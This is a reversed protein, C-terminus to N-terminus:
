SFARLHWMCLNRDVKLVLNSPIVLFDYNKLSLHCIHSFFINLWLLGDFNITQHHRLANARSTFIPTLSVCQPICISASSQTKQWRLTLLGFMMCKRTSIPSYYLTDMMISGIVNSCCNKIHNSHKGDRYRVIEKHGMSWISHQDVM